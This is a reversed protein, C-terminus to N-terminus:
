VGLPIAIRVRSGDRSLPLPEIFVREDDSARGARVLDYERQCSACRITRGRLAADEFGRACTPCRDRYAYITEGLRALMVPTDLLTLRALGHAGLDPLQDLRVWDTQLRLSGTAPESGRAPAVNGARVERVEPVRELIAKEITHKVTALSSPCGDCSGELWVNAIGDEVSVVEIGGEHSALYPRVDDLARRVRDELSLPHLGHLALLNEVLADRCLADFIAESRDEAAAHVITLVRELGDGYMEVLTRVLEEAADKAREVSPAAGVDRLLQEVRSAADGVPRDLM